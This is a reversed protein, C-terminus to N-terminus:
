RQQKLMRSVVWDLTKKEASDAERLARRAAALLAANLSNPVPEDEDEDGQDEDQDPQDEDDGPTGRSVPPPSPAPKAPLVEEEEEPEPVGYTKEIYSVPFKKGMRHLREDVQSRMDLDEEDEFLFDVVPVPADPGLNARVIPAVLQERITKALRGCDFETQEGEDSQYAERASRAGRDGQSVAMTNGMIAITIQDSVYKLLEPHPAGSSLGKTELLEITANDPYICAHDKGLSQVADWLAEREAVDTGPGYKGMRPPVGFRELFISWDSMAFRKFLWYWTVSRYLAARALPQSWSKQKHVLWTGLGFDQLPVGDSRRESTRVRIEDVNGDYTKTPDGLIFNQQPWHELRVPIFRGGDIRWVIQQVSFAKCIADTMHFMSEEFNLIGGQGNTGLILENALDAAQVSPGDDEIAPTIQLDKALVAQRRKNTVRGILPDREVEEFVEYQQFTDGQDAAKMAEGLLEPTARRIATDIGYDDRVGSHFQGAKFRLWKDTPGAPGDDVVPTFGSLARMANKIRDRIGM